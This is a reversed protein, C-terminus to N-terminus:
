SARAALALRAGSHDGANALALGLIWASRIGNGLGVVGFGATSDDSGGTVLALKAVVSRVSPATLGVRGAGAFGHRLYACALIVRYAAAVVLGVAVSAFGMCRPNGDG